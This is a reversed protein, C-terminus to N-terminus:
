YDEDDDDGFLDDLDDEEDDSPSQSLVPEIASDLDSDYGLLKELTNSDVHELLFDVFQNAAAERTKEPIYEKFTDWIEIIMNDDMIMM